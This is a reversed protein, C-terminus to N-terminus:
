DIVLIHWISDCTFWFPPFVVLTPDSAEIGRRCTRLRGVVPAVWVSKQNQVCLGNIM